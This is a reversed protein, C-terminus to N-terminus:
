NNRDNRYLARNSRACRSCYWHADSSKNGFMCGRHVYVGCGDGNCHILRGGFGCVKCFAEDNTSGEEQSGSGVEYDDDSRNLRNSSSVDSRDESVTSGEPCIELNAAPVGRRTHSRTVRWPVAVFPLIEPDVGDESPPDHKQKLKKSPAMIENSSSSKDSCAKDGRKRKAEMAAHQAKSKTRVLPEVFERLLAIYLGVESLSKISIHELRELHASLKMQTKGNQKEASEQFVRKLIGSLELLFDMVGDITVVSNLRFRINKVDEQVAADVSAVGGVVKHLRNVM